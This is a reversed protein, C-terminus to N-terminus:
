QSDGEFVASLALHQLLIITKADEIEGSRIAALARRFAV